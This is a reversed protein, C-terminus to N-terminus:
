RTLIVAILGRRRLATRAVVTSTAAGAGAGVATVPLPTNGTWPGYSKPPLPARNPAGRLPWMWWPWSTAAASPM